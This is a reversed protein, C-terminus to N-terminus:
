CVRCGESHQVNPIDCMSYRSITSSNDNVLSQWLTDSMTISSHNFSVSFDEVSKSNITRDLNNQSTILDFIRAVLLQIDAPMSIFGWTGTVEVEEDCDTFMNEFVISNYWSGNRKSWQRVSYKSPDIITGDMKVETVETFIDTFLTRYGERPEYTRPDTDDCVTTCLLDELSQTAIKLYLKFNEDEYPTLPRGLLASLREKNM